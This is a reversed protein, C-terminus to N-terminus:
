RLWACRRTRRSGTPSLTTSAIRLSTREARGPWPSLAGAARSARVAGAARGARAAAGGGRWRPGRSGRGHSEFDALTRPRLSRDLDEDPPDARADHIRVEDEVPEERAGVVCHGVYLLLPGLLPRQQQHGGTQAQTVGPRGILRAKRQDRLVHLAGAVPHKRADTAIEVGVLGRHKEPQHGRRHRQGPGQPQAEQAQATGHFVAGVLLGLGLMAVCLVTVGIRM